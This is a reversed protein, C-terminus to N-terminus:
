VGKLKREGVVGGERRKKEWGSNGEKGEEDVTAAHPSSLLRHLNSRRGRRRERIAVPHPLTPVVHHVPAQRPDALPWGACGDGRHTLSGGM